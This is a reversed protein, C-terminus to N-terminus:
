ASEEEAKSMRVLEAKWRYQLERERALEQHLTENAGADIKLKNELEAVKSQAQETLAQAERLKREASEFSDKWIQMETRLRRVVGEKYAGAEAQERIHEAIRHASQAAQEAHRLKDIYDTKDAALVVADKLAAEAKVISPQTEVERKTGHFDSWGLIDFLRHM